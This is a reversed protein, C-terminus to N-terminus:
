RTLEQVNGFKGLCIHTNADKLDVNRLTSDANSSKYDQEM